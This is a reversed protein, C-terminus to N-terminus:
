QTNVAFVAFRVQSDGSQIGTRRELTRKAKKLLAKLGTSRQKNENLLGEQEDEGDQEDYNVYSVSSAINTSPPVTSTNPNNSKNDVKTDTKVSAEQTQLKNEPQQVVITQQEQQPQHNIAITNNQQQVPIQQRTSSQKVAPTPTVSPEQVEEQQQVLENNTVPVDTTTTASPKTVTGPQQAPAETGTGAVPDTTTQKNYLWYGTGLMLIVAAAASWRRVATSMYFVRAPQAEKYLLSKDPFVISADANFKSRQLWAWDNQLQADAVIAEQVKIAEDKRLEGDLLLMLQEETVSEQKLLKNKFADDLKADIQLTTQQLLELEARVDPNEKIFAEVLVREAATLENDVYLLFYEEYNHRNINM